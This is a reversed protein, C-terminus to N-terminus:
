NNSLNSKQNSGYKISRGSTIDLKETFNTLKNSDKTTIIIKACPSLFLKTIELGISKNDSKVLIIKQELEQKPAYSM